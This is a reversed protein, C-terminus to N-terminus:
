ASERFRKFYIERSRRQRLVCHSEPRASERRFDDIRSSNGDAGTAWHMLLARTCSCPFAFSVLSMIRNDRRAQLRAMRESSPRIDTYAAKGHGILIAACRPPTSAADVLMRLPQKSCLPKWPRAEAVGKLLVEAWWKLQRKLEAGVVSNRSRKQWYLQHLM